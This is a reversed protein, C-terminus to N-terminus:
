INYDVTFFLYERQFFLFEYNHDKRMNNLFIGFILNQIFENSFFFTPTLM